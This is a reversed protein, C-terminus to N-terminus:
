VEHSNVFVQLIRDGPKLKRVKAAASEELLQLIFIGPKDGQRFVHQPHDVGGMIRLGLLANQRHVDM